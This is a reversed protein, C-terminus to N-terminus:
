MKLLPLIVPQDWINSLSKTGRNPVWNSYKTNTDKILFLSLPNKVTIYLWTGGTAKYEPNWVLYEFIDDTATIEDGDETQKGTDYTHSRYLSAAKYERNYNFVDNKSPIDDPALVESEDRPEGHTVIWQAIHAEGDAESLRNSQISEWSVRQKYFGRSISEKLDETWTFENESNPNQIKYEYFADFTMAIAYISSYEVSRINLGWLIGVSEFVDADVKKGKSDKADAVSKKFEPLIEKIDINAVNALSYVSEPNINYSGSPFEDIWLQNIRLPIIPYTVFKEQKVPTDAELYDIRNPDGLPKKNVYYVYTYWTVTIPLLSQHRIRFGYESEGAQLIPAAPPATSKVDGNNFEQLQQARISVALGGGKEADVVDPTYGDKHQIYLRYREAPSAKAIWSPVNSGSTDKDAYAFQPVGWKYYRDGSDLESWGLAAEYMRDLSKLQQHTKHETNATVYRSGTNNLIDDTSLLNNAHISQLNDPISKGHYRSISIDAYTTADDFILGGKGERRAM